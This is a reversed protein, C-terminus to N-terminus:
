VLKFRLAKFSARKCVVVGALFGVLAGMVVVPDSPDISTALCSGLVFGAMPLMLSNLLLNTQERLSMSVEIGAGVAPLYSSELVDSPLQLRVSEKCGSRCAGCAAREVSLHLM